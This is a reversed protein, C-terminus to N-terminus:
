CYIRRYLWKSIYLLRKRDFKPNKNHIISHHNRCVILQSNSDNNLSNAFYDIYHAEAINADYAKYVYFEYKSM